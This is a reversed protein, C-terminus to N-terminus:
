ANLSSPGGNASLIYATLNLAQDASLEAAGPPMNSEIYGALEAASKGGWVTRFNRGALQPGQGGGLDASHCLACQADYLARGAAATAPAATQSHGLGAAVVTLVAVASGLAIRSKSM